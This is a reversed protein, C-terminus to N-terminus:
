GSANARTIRTTWLEQVHLVEHPSMGASHSSDVAPCAKALLYDVSIPHIVEIGMNSYSAGRLLRTDLLVAYVVPRHQQEITRLRTFMPQFAVTKAKLWETDKTLEIARLKHDFMPHRLRPERRL